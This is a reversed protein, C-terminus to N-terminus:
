YVEKEKEKLLEEDDQDNNKSHIIATLKYNTSKHRNM